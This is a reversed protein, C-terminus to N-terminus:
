NLQLGVACLNRLPEQGGHKIFKHMVLVKKKTCSYDYEDCNRMKAKHKLGTHMRLTDKKTYTYYCLNCELKKKELKQILRVFHFRYIQIAGDCM